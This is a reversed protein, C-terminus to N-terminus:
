LPVGIARAIHRHLSQLALENRGYVVTFGAPASVLNAYGDVAVRYDERTVDSEADDQAFEGARDGDARVGRLAYVEIRCSMTGPTQGPFIRFMRVFAGGPGGSGVVVVTNPFLFHVGGYDAEPWESEPLGVLAKVRRDPFNIRWHPGFDDFVAVNGYHSVGITSAHLTAFHYGEGYTDLACKWNCDAALSSSRIPAADALELQALEPAFAGLYAPIDLEDSGAAARVFVIGNWEAVPVQILNRRSMDIGEFGQRGPVGVLSGDLEFTWAHFPCTMRGRRECTGDAGARVLKTGRHTCMNLFARLVGDRGRVIVISQGFEEFLLSDGPRPVARSLGAVLPVKLFIERRELEARAPDTYAAPDNELPGSAFDTTGGAAVHAVMRRQIARAVRRRREASDAPTIDNM